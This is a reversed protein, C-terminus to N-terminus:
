EHILLKFRRWGFVPLLTFILLTATFIPYKWFDSVLVMHTLGDDNADGQVRVLNSSFITQYGVKTSVGLLNGYLYSSVAMLSAPMYLLAIFTLIKIFKSDNQIDTTMKAMSENATVAHETIARLQQGNNQIAM